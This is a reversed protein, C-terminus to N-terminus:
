STEKIARARIERAPISSLSGSWKDCLKACAEREHAAVAEAFRVLQSPVPILGDLLKCKAALTLVEDKTM